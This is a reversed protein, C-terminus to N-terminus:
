YIYFLGNIAMVSLILFIALYIISLVIGLIVFIGQIKFYKNMYNFIDNLLYASTYTNYSKLSNSAKLLAVGSFIMPVGIAATIIGICTISGIVITYISIFKMWGSLSDIIPFMNIKNFDTPQVPNSFNNQETM